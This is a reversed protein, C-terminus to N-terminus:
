GQVHLIAGRMRPRGPDQPHRMFMSVRKGPSTTGNQTIRRRSHEDHLARSGYLTSFLVGNWTASSRHLLYEEPLAARFQRRAITCCTSASMKSRSILRPHSEIGVGRVVHVRYDRNPGNRRSRLPARSRGLAHIHIHITPQKPCVAWNCTPSCTTRQQL